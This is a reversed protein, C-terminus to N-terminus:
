SNSICAGMQCVWDSGSNPMRGAGWNELVAHQLGLGGGGEGGGGGGLHPAAHATRSSYRPTCHWSFSRSIHQFM